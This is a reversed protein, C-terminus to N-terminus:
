PATLSDLSTLFTPIDVQDGMFVRGPKKEGAKEPWEGHGPERKIRARSGSQEEVDM